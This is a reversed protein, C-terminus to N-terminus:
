VTLMWERQAGSRLQANSSPFAQPNFENVIVQYSLTRAYIKGNRLLIQM